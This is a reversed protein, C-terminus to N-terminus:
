KILRLWILYLNKHLELKVCEEWELSGLLKNQIDDQQNIGQSLPEASLFGIVADFSVQGM